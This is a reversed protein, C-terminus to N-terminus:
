FKNKQKKEGTVKIVKDELIKFSRVDYRIKERDKGIRFNIHRIYYLSPVDNLDGLIQFKYKEGDIIDFIFNITDITEIHYYKVEIQAQHMYVPRHKCSVFLVLIIIGIIKKM